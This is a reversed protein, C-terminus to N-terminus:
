RSLIPSQLAPVRRLWADAPWRGPRPPRQRPRSQPARFLNSWSSCSSLLYAQSPGDVPHHVVHDRLFFRREAETGLHFRYELDVRAGDDGELGMVTERALYLGLAVQHCLYIERFDVRRRTGDGDAAGFRSVAQDHLDQVDTRPRLAYGGDDRLEALEYVYDFRGDGLNEGDVVADDM